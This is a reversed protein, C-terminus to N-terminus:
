EGVGVATMAPRLGLSREADDLLCLAVRSVARSRLQRACWSAFHAAKRAIPTVDFNEVVYRLQYRLLESQIVSYRYDPDAVAAACDAGSDSLCARARALDWGLSQGDTLFRDTNLEISKALPQLLFYGLAIRSALGDEALKEREPRRILHDLQDDILDILDDLRLANEASALRRGSSRVMGHFLTRDPHRRDVGSSPSCRALADILQRRCTVHAVWESGCVQVSRMGDLKPATAWYALARMHQTPLGDARVLPMEDLEEHGTVYVIVGDERRELTGTDLGIRCLREMVDVYESEYIIEDFEVGLRALTERHGSVVWDRTMSWLEVADADGRRVRELVVDAEDRHMVSERDLSDTEARGVLGESRNEMVYEAYCRGVYHDSKEMLEVGDSGLPRRLVGAMAEGMGRGIDALLSRREVQVGASSLAAGLANGVALDRLHGVHLAKTTNAGWFYVAVPDLASPAVDAAVDGAGPSLALEEIAVDELRVNAGVEDLRVGRVWPSREVQAVMAEGARRQGAHPILRLDCGSSSDFPAQVTWRGQEPSGALVEDLHIFLNPRL